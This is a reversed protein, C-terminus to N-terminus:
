EILIELILSPFIRGLDQQLHGRLERYPELELLSAHTPKLTLTIEYCSGMKTLHIKQLIFLGHLHRRVIREVKSRLPRATLTRGVLAFFSNRVIGLPMHLMALSMAIVILPDGLYYLFGWRSQVPVLAIAVLAVGMGLSILTDMLAESAEVQLITSERGTRRYQWAYYFYMGMCLTFTVAMYILIPTTQLQHDRAGDLYRAIAISSEIMAYIIIALLTLGKLFTYLSEFSYYGYPFQDNRTNKHQAIRIAVACSIASVFAYSGDFSLAASGSYYYGLWGAIAMLVNAWVGIRLAKVEVQQIMGADPRLPSKKRHKKPHTGGTAKVAKRRLIRFPRAHKKKM